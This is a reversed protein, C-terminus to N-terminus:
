GHHHGQSKGKAIQQVWYSDFVPHVTRSIQNPHQVKGLAHIFSLAVTDEEDFGRAKFADLYETVTLDPTPAKGFSEVEDATADKRGWTM